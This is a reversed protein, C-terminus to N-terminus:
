RLSPFEVNIGFKSSIHRSLVDYVESVSSTTLETTSDVNDVIVQIPRWLHEKVNYSNWPIETEEKLVKKMDLGADNLAEALLSFYKHLAKNQTLTRKKDEIINGEFRINEGIEAFVKQDEESAPMLAGDIKTFIM